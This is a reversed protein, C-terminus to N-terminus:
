RRKWAVIVEVLFVTIATLYGCACMVFCGYFHILKLQTDQPMPIHPPLKFYTEWKATLGVSHMRVIMEDFCLKLYSNKPYLITEYGVYFNEKSILVGSPIQKRPLIFAKKDSFGTIIELYIDM